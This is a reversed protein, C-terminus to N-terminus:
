NLVNVMVYGRYFCFLFEVYVYYILERFKLDFLDVGLFLLMGDDYGFVVFVVM